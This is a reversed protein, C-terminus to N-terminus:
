GRLRILGLRQGLSAAVDDGLALSNLAPACALALVAGAAVFPLIQLVVDGGQDALSGAAWFRYRNLAEPNTLVVASTISSLLSTM